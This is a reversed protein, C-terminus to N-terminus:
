KSLAQGIHLRLQDQSTPAGGALEYILKAALRMDSQMQPQDRLLVSRARAEFRNALASMEEVTLSAIKDYAMPSEGTTLVWALLPLGSAACRRLALLPRSNRFFFRVVPRRASKQSSDNFRRFRNPPSRTITNNRVAAGVPEGLPREVVATNCPAGRPFRWVSMPRLASLCGLADITHRNSTLIQKGSEGLGGAPVSRLQSRRAVSPGTQM